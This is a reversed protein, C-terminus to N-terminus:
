GRPRCATGRAHPSSGTDLIKNKDALLQEGRMRPHDRGGVVLELREISNGACAPIIGSPLVCFMVLGDTGRAHPSSGLLKVSRSMVSLQEGRMRPHDRSDTTPRWGRRRNGACAPIIGAERHEVSGHVGTGRARPSSGAGCTDMTPRSTQEGRVRPHDRRIAKTCAHRSRNGACAPIIGTQSSTLSMVIATGRARPSSGSPPSSFSVSAYQEGRM